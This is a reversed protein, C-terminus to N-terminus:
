RCFPVPRALAPVMRLGIQRPPPRANGAVVLSKEFFTFRLIYRIANRDISDSNTRWSRNNTQSSNFTSEGLVRSNTVFSSFRLWGSTNITLSSM